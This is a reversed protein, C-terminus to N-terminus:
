WQTAITRNNTKKLSKGIFIHALAKMAAKNASCGKCTSDTAHTASLFSTRQATNQNPVIAAYMHYTRWGVMLFYKSNKKNNTNPNNAFGIATVIGTM